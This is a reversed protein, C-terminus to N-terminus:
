TSLNFRNGQKQCPCWHGPESLLEKIFVIFLAQEISHWRQSFVLPKIHFSLIKCRFQCLLPVCRMRKQFVPYSLSLVDGKTARKFTLIRGKCGNDLRGKCAHTQSLILKKDLSVLQSLTQIRSKRLNILPIHEFSVKVTNQRIQGFEVDLCRHSNYCQHSRM